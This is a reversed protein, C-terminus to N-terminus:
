SNYKSKIIDNLINAVSVMIVLITVHNPQKYLTFLHFKNYGINNNTM